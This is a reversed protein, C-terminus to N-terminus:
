DASAGKTAKVVVLYGGDKSNSLLESITILSCSVPFLMSSLWFSKMGINFVECFQLHILLKDLLFGFLPNNIHKGVLNVKTLKNAKM